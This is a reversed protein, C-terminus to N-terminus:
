STAHRAIEQAYFLGDSLAFQFNRIDFHLIKLAASGLSLKM